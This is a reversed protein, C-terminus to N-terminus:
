KIGPLVISFAAGKHRESEVSLRGGLTDIISHCVSLGLGTGNRNKKTSYFPIFVREMDEAHIGIGNDAVKVLANGDATVSSAVVVEGGESGHEEVVAHIANNLLNVMVQQLLGQDAMVAPTRKDVDFILRIGELEAKKEVLNAVKPLYEVLNIRELEPKRPRGFNLIERTIGACRDIQIKLQRNIEEIESYNPSEGYKDMEEQLLIELLALDSKMIQLPNNIEHAFGASMEGLEALKAARIFQAELACVTDAQRTLMDYVRNSAFVALLVLVSGGCVLIALILYLASSSPSFAEARKQRVILRWRDSNLSTSAFIYEEGNVTGSFTMVRGSQPPYSYGDSEFIDGGSRRSTQLRNDSNIIYAEGSDGINVKEALRRLAGPRLTARLVWRRDGIAKAVSVNLHPVGRLGLYIDSVNYGTELTKRYWESDRYNKNELPFDGVYAVQNGDQDILGLDSYMERRFSRLEVLMMRAKATDEIGKGILDMSEMLDGRREDLFYTVMDGHDAAALRIASLALRETSKM